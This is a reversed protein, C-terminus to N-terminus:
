RRASGAAPAAAAARCPRERLVIRDQVIQRQEPIRVLERLSMVDDAEMGFMGDRKAIM